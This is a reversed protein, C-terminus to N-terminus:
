AHRVLSGARGGAPRGRVGRLFAAPLVGLPIRRVHLAVQARHGGAEQQHVLRLDVRVGVQHLQAEVRDREGFQDVLDVLAVREFEQGGNQELAGRQGAEGGVEVGVVPGLEGGPVSVPLPGGVLPRVPKAASSGTVTAASGPAALPPSAPSPSPPTRSGCPARPGTSTATTPMAPISGPDDSRVSNQRWRIRPSSRTPGTGSSRASRRASSRVRCRCPPKRSSTAANSAPSNPM